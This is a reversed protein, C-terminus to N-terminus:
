WINNQVEIRSGGTPDSEGVRSRKLVEYGHHSISPVVCHVSRCDGGGHLESFGMGVLGVFRRSEGGIVVVVVGRGFRRFGAWGFDCLFSSCLIGVTVTHALRLLSGRYGKLRFEDPGGRPRTSERSYATSNRLIRLGLSFNWVTGSRRPLSGPVDSWGPAVRGPRSRAWRGDWGTQGGRGGLGMRPTDTGGYRVAVAVGCVSVVM